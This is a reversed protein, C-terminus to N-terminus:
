IQQAKAHLKMNMIHVEHIYIWNLLIHMLINESRTKLLFNNEKQKVWWTTLPKLKEQDWLLM